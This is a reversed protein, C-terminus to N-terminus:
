HFNQYDAAASTLVGDAHRERLAGLYIFDPACGAVATNRLNCLAHVDLGSVNVAYNSKGLCVLGIQNHNCGIVRQCEAHNIRELCSTDAGKARALICGHNLAGLGKGLVEHM